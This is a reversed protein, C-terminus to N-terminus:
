DNLFMHNVLVTLGYGTLASMAAMQPATYTAHGSWAVSAATGVGVVGLATAFGATNGQKLATVGPLPAWAMRELSSMPKMTEPPPAKTVVPLEPVDIGVPPTLYLSQYTVTAISRRHAILASDYLVTDRKRAEPTAVFVAGVDLQKGDAQSVAQGMIVVDAGASAGHRTACQFDTGCIALARRTTEGVSPPLDEITIPRVSPIGELVRLVYMAATKADQEANGKFPVVLVTWPQIAGYDEPSMPDMSRLESPAIRVEGQPTKLVMETATIEGIEAPIVRGNALEISRYEAAIAPTSGCLAMLTLSRIM